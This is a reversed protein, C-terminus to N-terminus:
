DSRNPRASQRAPTQGRNSGHSATAIGLDAALPFGGVSVPCTGFRDAPAALHNSVSLGSPAARSTSLGAPSSCPIHALSLLGCARGRPPTLVEMTHAPCRM